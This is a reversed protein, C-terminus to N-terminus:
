LPGGCVYWKGDLQRMDVSAGESDMTQENAPSKPKHKVTFTPNAPIAEFFRTYEGSQMNHMSKSARTQWEEADAPVWYQSAKEVNEHKIAAIFATAVQEPKTRDVRNAILRWGALLAIAVVIGILLVKM